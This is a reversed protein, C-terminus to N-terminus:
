YLGDYIQDRGESVVRKAAKKTVEYRKINDVSRDLHM